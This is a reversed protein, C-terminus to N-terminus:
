VAVDSKVFFRVLINDARQVLRNPLNVRQRSRWVEDQMCTVQAMKGFRFIEIREFLIQLAELRAFYKIHRALVVHDTVVTRQKSLAKSLFRDPRAPVAEVFSAHM